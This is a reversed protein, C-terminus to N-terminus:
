SIFGMWINRRIRSGVKSETKRTTISTNHDYEEVVFTKMSFYSVCILITRKFLFCRMQLNTHTSVAAKFDGPRM